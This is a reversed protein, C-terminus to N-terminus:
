SRALDRYYKWLDWYPCGPILKVGAWHLYKLPKDTNPDVLINRERKFHDMGAWSGSGKEPFRSLNVHNKINKLILYNIIPQDTVKQSFDFYEPHEACERFTEYLVEETIIGKKAGWFGSNFVGELDNKGFVHDKLINETFINKIGSRHQYDCCFFDYESLYKLNNAIKEFVVVDTDVYIFEDFPGFWCVHKRHKNPKDFFKRGFIKHINESILKVQSLNQYVSINQNSMLGEATKTYREDYPILIVPTDNDFSRISNILAKTQDFVTDNALIYIGRKM